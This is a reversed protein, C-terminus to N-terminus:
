QPLWAYSIPFVRGQQDRAQWTLTIPDASRTLATITGVMMSRPMLVGQRAADGGTSDRLALQAQVPAGGQYVRLSSPDILMAQVSSTNSLSYTVTTGRGRFSLRLFDPVLTTAPAWAAAPAPAPAAVPAPLVPAPTAQVQPLAAPASFAAQVGPFSVAPATPLSAAVPAPMAASSFMTSASPFVPAQVTPAPAAAFTVQPAAVPLPAAVQPFSSPTAAVPAPFTMAPGPTQAPAPTPTMVPAFSAATLPAQVQPAPAAAQPARAAPPQPALLAQTLRTWEAQSRVMEELTAVRLPQPSQIYVSIGTGEYNPILYVGPAITLTGYPLLQVNLPMVLSQGDRTTVVANATTPTQAHASPLVGLALTLALTLVNKM